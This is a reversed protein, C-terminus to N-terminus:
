DNPRKGRLRHAKQRCAPSCTAADARRGTMPVHCIACRRAAGISALRLAEQRQYLQDFDLHRHGDHRFALYVAGNSRPVREVRHRGDALYGPRYAHLVLYPPVGIAGKVWDTLPLLEGGHAHDAVKALVGVSSVRWAERAGAEILQRLAPTGRVTGFRRAMISAAGGDAIHPPDYVALDYAADPLGTATFDLHLDGPAAPDLNNGTLRIGPPLPDRWFGRHAFTLDLVTGADRFALHLVRRTAEASSYPGYALTVGRIRPDPPRIAPRGTVRVPAALARATVTM